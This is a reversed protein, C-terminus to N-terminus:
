AAVFAAILRTIPLTVIVDSTLLARPTIAKVSGVVLTRDVTSM